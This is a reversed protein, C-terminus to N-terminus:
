QILLKQVTTSSENQVKFLYVGKPLDSIDVEQHATMKMRKVIEGSANLLTLQGGQDSEYVVSSTAPNPFLSFGNGELQDLSLTGQNINITYSGTENNWGEVVVFLSDHGATPLTLESQPGCSPGDDNIAITNGQTDKVSLFTDFGSGCLSIELSSLSAFNTLLYYVDPSNYVPNNNSYCITNSYTENFPYSAVPRPDSEDDGIYASCDIGGQIDVLFDTSSGWSFSACPDLPISGGEQHNIRMRTQGMTATSPVSINFVSQATPPTGSWTGVSETSEFIGNQNFDIWVEGAGGYNGGCTGFQVYLTYNNGAGLIVSQSFDEELGIVGPCGTYSIGGGDGTLSVSEINSDNASTPGGACYQAYSFSATLFTCSLLLKIM